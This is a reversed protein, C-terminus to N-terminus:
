RRHSRGAARTHQAPAPGPKSDALRHRSAVARGDGGQYLLPQFLHHNQRDILTIDAPAKALRKAVTLGGFGAGVIVVRPRQGKVDDDGGDPM